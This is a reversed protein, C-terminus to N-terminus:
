MRQMLCPRKFYILVSWFQINNFIKAYSILLVICVKFFASAYVPEVHSLDLPKDYDDGWLRITENVDFIALMGSLWGLWLPTSKLEVRQLPRLSIASGTINVSLWQLSKNRACVLIREDNESWELVPLTDPPGGLRVGAARGGAVIIVRSLTALALIRADRATM